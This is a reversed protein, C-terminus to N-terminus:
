SAGMPKSTVKQRLGALNGSSEVTLYYAESVAGRAVTGAILIAPM